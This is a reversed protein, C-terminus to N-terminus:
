EAARAGVRDFGYRERVDSFERDIDEESLGVRALSPTQTAKTPLRDADELIEAFRQSVTLDMAEYLERVITSTDSILEDFRLTRAQAPPLEALVQEPYRYWHGAIDLIRRRNPYPERPAGFYHWCYAFWNTMSPLLEVPDRVLNVFRADPFVELLSRIKPTFSPNKSVVRLNEGHVYLHRQLMSRYFRMLRSRRRPPVSEDFWPYRFDAAQIPFFFWVFLSDWAYFFLGEDEEAEELRIRHFPIRRLVRDEVSALGRRVPRGILGDVFMLFSWLKRQSITPTVYIERTTLGTVNEEDQALLRQLFTTGSRFNGVIFLPKNVRVRRYGPFFIEDLLMCFWTFAISWPFILSFAALFKVRRARLRSYDDRPGLLQRRIQRMLLRVHLVDTM